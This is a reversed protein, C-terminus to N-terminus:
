ASVPPRRAALIDSVARAASLAVIAAGLIALTPETIYRCAMDASDCFGVIRPVVIVAAGGALLAASGCLRLGTKKFFISVIAAAAVAAGVVAAAVCAKECDMAMVMGPMGRMGPMANDGATEVLRYVAFPIVGAAVGLVGIVAYLARGRTRKAM